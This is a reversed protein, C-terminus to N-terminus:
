RCPQLWRTGRATLARGGEGPVKLFKSNPIWFRAPWDHAPPGASAALPSLRCSAPALGPRPPRPRGRERKGEKAPSSRASHRPPPARAGLAPGLADGARGRSGGPVRRWGARDPAAVAVAVPGAGRVSRGAAPHPPPPLLAGRPEPGARM